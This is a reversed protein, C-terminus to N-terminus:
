WRLKKKGILNGLIALLVIPITYYIAFYVISDKDCHLAYATAVLVGSSFGSIAGLKSPSKPATRKLWFQWLMIFAMIGGILIIAMCYIASSDKLSNLIELNPLSMTQLFAEYFFIVSAIIFPIYHTKKIDEDPRSIDAIIFISGILLSSLIAIKWFMGGSQFSLEIDVRLGLTLIIILSMFSFCGSCSIWLNRNSLPKKAKLDDVLSDIIDDNM